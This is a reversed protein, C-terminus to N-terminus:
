NHSYSLIWYFFLLHLYHLEPNTYNQIFVMLHCFINFHGSDYTFYCENQIKVKMSYLMTVIVFYYNNSM